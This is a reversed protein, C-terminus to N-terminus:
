RSLVASCGQEQPSINNNLEFTWGYSKCLRQVILLGLGHETEPLGDLGKGTDVVSIKQNNVTVTISGVSTFRIANDILNKLIMRIVAPSMNYKQSSDIRTILEVGSSLKKKYASLGLNEDNIEHYEEQNVNEQKVISLLLEVTTQMNSAALLIRDRQKTQFEMDDEKMAQLNAAGLIVAIPTKLEHSAYKAFMLEQKALREKMQKYNNLHRTFQKLEDISRKSVEFEDEKKNELQLSLESLPSMLGDFVRRLSFRLFGILFLMLALSLLMLTDWVDDGFDISRTGITLFLPTLKGEESYFTDHYVMYGDENFTNFKSVKDQQYPLNHSLKGDLATESYYATINPSIQVKDEKVLAYHDKAIQEFSRLHYEVKADENFVLHLSFGFFVFFASSLSMVSFTFLLRKKVDEISHTSRSPFIRQRWNM